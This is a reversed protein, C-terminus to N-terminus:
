KENIKDFDIKIAIDYARSCEEKSLGTEKMLYNIAAEKNEFQSIQTKFDKLRKIYTRFEDISIKSKKGYANREVYAMKKNNEIIGSIFGIIMFLYQLGNDKIFGYIIFFAIVIMILVLEFFHDKEWKKKFFDIKDKLTFASNELASLLNNDAVEKFTEDSLREGAFFENLTIGLIECISKYLSVDPMGRGNEWKSISRDTVGLKEALEVQTLKKKKRQEAIFKGIKEQDMFKVGKV